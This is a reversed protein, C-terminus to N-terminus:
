KMSLLEDIKHALDRTNEATEQAWKDAQAKEERAIAVRRVAEEDVSLHEAKRWNRGKRDKLKEFDKEFQRQAKAEAKEEDLQAAM